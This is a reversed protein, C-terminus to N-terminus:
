PSLSNLFSVYQKAKVGYHITEYAISRMAKTFDQIKYVKESFSVVEALSFRHTRLFYPEMEMNNILDTDEYGVVFPLGRAWYERVKLPCAESLFDSFGLSGIGIHCLNFLESLKDGHQHPVRTVRNITSARATQEPSINGAIYCHINVDGKYTALSDLVLDVGHWPAESGALLLLNLIKGDYPKGERPPVRDVDIGNSIVAAPIKKKVLNMQFSTIEGTVGVIGSACARVAKGFIKESFYFYKYYFSRAKRLALERIEITNHEFVIGARASGVFRWLFFDAVPYRFIIVDFANVRMYRKLSNYNSRQEALVSLRWFLPWRAIWRQNKYSVPIIREGHASTSEGVIALEIDLGNNRLFAVKDSLKKQIGEGPHGIALYLVKM